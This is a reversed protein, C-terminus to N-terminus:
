LVIISSSKAKFYLAEEELTKANIKRSGCLAKELALAISQKYHNNTPLLMLLTKAYTLYAKSELLVCDGRLAQPMCDDLVRRSREPEGLYLLVEAFM